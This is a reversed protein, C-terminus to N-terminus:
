VAVLFGSLTFVKTVSASLGKDTMNPVYRFHPYFRQQHRTKAAIIELTPLKSM